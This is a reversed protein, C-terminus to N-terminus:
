DNKLEEIIDEGLLGRLRSFALRTRSKVTGIPLNLEEAIETQSLGKFFGAILVERQEDSLGAIAARVQEQRELVALHAAGDPEPEPQFMPDNPDPEPRAHRRLTDIWRNRAITFLWTTVKARNVDFMQAKRWVTVMVEQALEDADAEKAGIKLLFGRIRGAYRGFFAAFAARDSKAIAAVLAEDSMGDYDSVGGSQQSNKEIAM